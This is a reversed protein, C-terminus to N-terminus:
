NGTAETEDMDNHDEIHEDMVEADYTKFPCSLRPCTYEHEDNM